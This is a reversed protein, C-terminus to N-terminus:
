YVTQLIISMYIFVMFEMQLNSLNVTVLVPEINTLQQFHVFGNINSSSISFKSPFKVIVEMINFSIYIYKLNNLFM